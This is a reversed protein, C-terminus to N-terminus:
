VVEVDIVFCDDDASWHFGTVSKIGNSALYQKVKEAVINADSPQLNYLPRHVDKLDHMDLGGIVYEAQKAYVKEKTADDYLRKEQQWELTMNKIQSELKQIRKGAFLGSLKM